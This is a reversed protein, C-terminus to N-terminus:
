IHLLLILVTNVLRKELSWNLTIFFIELWEEEGMVMNQKIRSISCPSLFASSVFRDILVVRSFGM